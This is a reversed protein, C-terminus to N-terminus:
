ILGQEKLIAIVRDSTLDTFSALSDVSMGSKYGKVIIKVQEEAKGKAIGKAEGEVIGEARGKAISTSILSKEVSINDWYKDYAALEAETFGAKECIDVANRIDPNEM